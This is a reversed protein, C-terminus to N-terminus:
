AGPQTEDEEQIDGMFDLPQSNVSSSSSLSPLRPLSFGPGVSMSPGLLPVSPPPLAQSQEFSQTYHASYTQQLGNSYGCSMAPALRVAPPAGHHFQNSASAGVGRLMALCGTRQILVQKFDVCCRTPDTIYTRLHNLETSMLDWLPHDLLPKMGEIRSKLGDLQAVYDNKADDSLHVQDLVANLLGVVEYRLSHLEAMMKEDDAAAAAAAAIPLHYTQPGNFPDYSVTMHTDPRTRVMIAAEKGAPLDGVYIDRHGQVRSVPYTSRVEEAQNVQLHVRQSRMSLLGGMIDGFVVPVDAANQVVYYSGAHSESMRRLLEVNHNTGYGICSVSTGSFREFMGSIQDLIAHTTVHGHTAEGDTLLMIGQKRGMHFPLLTKEAEMLGACLNTGGHALITQIRQRIEAKSATDCLFRHVLTEVEVDFTIITMVDQDTLSDLFFQLSQKVYVMKGNESMSGSTDIVCCLHVPVRENIEEESLRVCTWGSKM